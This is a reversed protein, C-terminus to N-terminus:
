SQAIQAFVFAELDMADIGMYSTISIQGERTTNKGFLAGDTDMKNLLGEDTPLNNNFYRLMLYDRVEGNPALTGGQPVLLMQYSKPSKSSDAGALRAPNWYNYKKFDYNVGKIKFSTDYDFIVKIDDTNGNNIIIQPTASSALFDTVAYYAEIGVLGRYNNARGSGDIARALDTFFADNIVAGTGGGDLSTGYEKVLEVLGLANNNENGTSTVADTAHGDILAMEKADTHQRTITTNDLDYYTVGGRQEIKIMTALDTYAKNTRIMTVENERETWGEYEGDQQFSAEQVKPRGLSIFEADAVPITVGGSPIQSSSVPKITATHAGATTKNVATVEFVIDTSNERFFLGVAPASLTEGADTYTSITVTIPTDKDVVTVNSTVRFLNRNKNFDVITKYTRQGTQKIRGSAELEAVLSDGTIDRFAKHFDLANSETVLGLSLLVQENIRPHSFGHQPKHAM